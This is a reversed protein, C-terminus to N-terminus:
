NNYYCFDVYRKFLTKYDCKFPYEKLGNIYLNFSYELIDKNETFWTNFTYNKYRPRHVIIDKETIEYQSYGSNSQEEIVFQNLDFEYWVVEFTNITFESNDRINNNLNNM